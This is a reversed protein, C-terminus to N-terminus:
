FYFQCVRIDKGGQTFHYTESKFNQLQNVFASWTEENPCLIFGLIHKNNSKCFKSINNLQNAIKKYLNITNSDKNLRLGYPPNMAIFINQYKDDGSLLIKEIELKFFNEEFYPANQHESHIFLNEPLSIKNENMLNNFSTLNKLFVSNAKNSSDNCLIRSKNKLTEQISLNFHEASKKLLFDFNSKRFFPLKQLAYQKRLLAPSITLSKLLYEFAFTGTGSFPLFFTEPLFSSNLKSGFQICKEICCAAADERLPASANLTEKFGRKYLPEGAISLSLTLKDKYLDAHLCTTEETNEGQVIENVKDGLIKKLIERLGTEHFAKSAVSDVKLKLSIQNNIYLNWNVNSCKKQFTEKNACNGQFIILKIDSICKARMMLEILSVTHANKIYISNKNTTVEPNMKQPLWLNNFIFNIEDFAVSSFGPPYTVIAEQPKGYIHKKIQNEINITNITNM